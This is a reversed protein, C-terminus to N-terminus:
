FIADPFLKWPCLSYTFCSVQIHTILETEENATLLQKTAPGWLFLQLADDTDFGQKMKKKAKTKQPVYVESDLSNPKPASRNKARRELLSKSERKQYPCPLAIVLM